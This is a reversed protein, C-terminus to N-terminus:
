KHFLRSWFNRKEKAASIQRLNQDREFAAFKEEFYIKQEEFGQKFELKITESYANMLAKIENQHKEREAQVAKEVLNMVDYREQKELENTTIANHGNMEGIKKAVAEITMGDYKILEMFNELTQIDKNTFFRHNKEDRQFVYGEKELALIYKKYVSDKLGLKKMVEGPKYVLETM